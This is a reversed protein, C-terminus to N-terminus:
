GERALCGALESCFGGRAGQSSRPPPGLRKVGWQGGAGGPEAPGNPWSGGKAEFGAAGRPHM